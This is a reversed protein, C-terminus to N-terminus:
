IEFFSSIVMAATHGCLAARCLMNRDCCTTHMNSVHGEEPTEWGISSSSRLLRHRHLWRMPSFLAATAAASRRQNEQLSRSPSFLICVYMYIYIYIYIYVCVYTHIYMDVHTVLTCDVLAVSRVSFGAVKIRYFDACRKGDDCLNRPMNGFSDNRLRPQFLPQQAFASRKFAYYMRKTIKYFQFLTTYIKLFQFPGDGAWGRGGRWRWWKMRGRERM